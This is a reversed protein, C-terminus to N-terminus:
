RARTGMGAPGSGCPAALPHARDALALCPLLLLLLRRRTLSGDSSQAFRLLPRQQRDPDLYSSMGAAMMRREAEYSLVGSVVDPVVNWASFFLTKTREEQGQFAGSLPWYPVTPPIWLLKWLGTDLLDGVLERLKANDPDIESWGEIDERRLFADPHAELVSTVKDPSIGLTEALRENVKYGQMFHPLYPASKWFPMPDRDGVAKFLADAALYQGIDAPMIKVPVLPEEVMADRDASAAVRETRAMVSRLTHEVERKAAMVDSEHGQAAQKLARGFRGLQAKM